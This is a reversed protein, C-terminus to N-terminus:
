PETQSFDNKLHYRAHELGAILPYRGMEHAAKPNFMQTIKNAIFM